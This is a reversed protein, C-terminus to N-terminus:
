AVSLLALELCSRSTVELRRQVTYETTLQVGLM